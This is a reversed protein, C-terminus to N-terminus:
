RSQPLAALRVGPGTDRVRVLVGDLDDRVTVEVSGGGGHSSLSDLANDVLNGVVTVLDRADPYDESLSSDEAISLEIGYMGSGSGQLRDNFRVHPHLKQFGQEWLKFLGAMQDNGHTRLLGTVEMTPKYDPLKSIDPAAPLAPAIVLAALVAASLLGTIRPSFSFTNM